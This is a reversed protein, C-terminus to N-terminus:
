RKERTSHFMCSGNKAIPGQVIDCASPDLFKECDVCNHSTEYTYKALEQTMKSDSDKVIGPM